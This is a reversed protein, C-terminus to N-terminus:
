AGSSRATRLVCHWDRLWPGARGLFGAHARAAGFALCATARRQCIAFRFSRLRAPVRFPDHPEGVGAGFAAAPRPAFGYGPCEVVRGDLRLDSRALAATRYEGHARAM